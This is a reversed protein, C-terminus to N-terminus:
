LELREVVETVLGSHALDWDDGMSNVIAEFVKQADINNLKNLDPADNDFYYGSSIREQIEEVITDKDLVFANPIVM